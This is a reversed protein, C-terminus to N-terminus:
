KLVVGYGGTIYRRILIVDAIDVVGDKNVDAANEPVEVGYGGTIYRRILIVDAIDITEDGNVDGPIYSLPEGNVRAEVIRECKTCRRVETKGVESTADLLIEWDGWNMFVLARSRKVSCLVSRFPNRNHGCVSCEYYYGRNGEYGFLINFIFRILRELWSMSVYKKEYQHPAKETEEHLIDHCRSCEYTLEGSMTCTADGRHTVHYDHGLSAVIETETEGCACVHHRSGDILCDAEEDIVWEGFSHGTSLVFNDKYEEGCITCIHLTYGNSTCTPSVVIDTYTHGTGDHKWLSTIVMDHNAILGDYYGNWGLFSYGTKM